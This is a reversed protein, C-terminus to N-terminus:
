GAIALLVGSFNTSSLSGSFVQVGVEDGVQLQTITVASLSCGDMFTKAAVLQVEGTVVAIETNAGSGYSSFSFQYYGAVPATFIGSNPSIGGGLSIVPSADFSLFTVNADAAYLFDNSRQVSFIIPATPFTAARSADGEEAIHKVVDV